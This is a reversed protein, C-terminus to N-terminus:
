TVEEMLDHLYAKLRKSDPISKGLAKEIKDNQEIAHGYLESAFENNGMHQEACTRMLYLLSLIAADVSCAIGRGAAQVAESYNDLRLYIESMRLYVKAQQDDIELSKLHHQIAKETKGMKKDLVFAKMFYANIVVETDGCSSIITNYAKFLANWEGLHFMIEAMVQLAEISTPDNRLADSLRKKAKELRNRSLEIRGLAIYAQTVMPNNSQGATLELISRFVNESEDLQKNNLLLPGLKQLTPLHGKNLELVENFEVIALEPEEVEVLSIGYSYFFNAVELRIDFDDLEQSKQHAKSKKFFPIASSYNGLDYEYMACFVISDMNSDDFGSYQQYLQFVLDKDGIHEKAVEIAKQIYGASVLPETQKDSLQQFLKVLKLWEGRENYIDILISSAESQFEPSQISEELMACAAEVQVLDTYYLQGLRHQLKIKEDGKLLPLLAEAYSAMSEADGQIDTIEVLQTLANINNPSHDLVKSWADIALPYNFQITQRINAIQQLCSLKQEADYQNAERTLLAILDDYNETAAYISKLTSIALFDNPNLDLADLLATKAEDIKEVTYYANAIHRYYKAADEPSNANTALRQLYKVAVETEGHEGNIRALAELIELDNPNEEHLYTFTELALSSTALHEVLIWHLKSNLYRRGTPEKWNELLSRLHKAAQEWHGAYEACRIIRFGLLRINFTDNQEQALEFLTQYQAGALEFERMRELNEAYKIPEPNPLTDFLAELESLKHNAVYIDVLGDFAKGLGPSADFIQRFCKAAAELQGSSKLSYGAALAFYQKIAQNDEGLHTALSQYINSLIPHSPNTSLLFDQAQFATTVDSPNSEYAKTWLLEDESLRARDLINLDSPAGELLTLAEDYAEASELLHAITELDSLTSESNDIHRGVVEILNYQEYEVALHLLGFVAGSQTTQNSASLGQILTQARLDHSENQVLQEEAIFDALELPMAGKWRGGPRSILLDNWLTSEQGFHGSLRELAEILRVDTNPLMAILLALVVEQHESQLLSLLITAAAEVDDLFVWHILGLMLNDEISPETEAIQEIISSWNNSIAALRCLHQQVITSLDVPTSALASKALQFCNVADSPRNLKNEAIDAAMVFHSPSNQTEAISMYHQFVDEWRNEKLLLLSNLQHFVPHKSRQLFDGERKHKVAAKLLYGEWMLAQSSDANVLAIQSEVYAVIDDYNSQAMMLESIKEAFPFINPNLDFGTRFASLAKSSDGAVLYAEGLCWQVYAKRNGSENESISSLAEIYLANDKNKLLLSSLFSKENLIFSEANAFDGSEIAVYAARKIWAQRQAPHQQALGLYLQIRTDSNETQRLLREYSIFTESDSPSSEYAKQLLRVAEALQGSQEEHILGAELYYHSAIGGSSLDGMKEYIIAAQPWDEDSELLHSLTHLVNWNDPQIDLAQQLLSIARDTRNLQSVEFLAVDILASIVQPPTLSRAWRELLEASLYFEGKKACVDAFDRLSKPELLSVNDAKSYAQYAGDNDRLIQKLLHGAETYFAGRGENEDLHEAELLLCHALDQAAKIPSSPVYLDLERDNAPKDSPEDQESDLLSEGIEDEVNLGSEQQYQSELDEVDLSDGLNIEDSSPLEPIPPTGIIEVQSVPELKPSKSVQVASKKIIQGDDDLEEDEALESSDVPMYIEDLDDITVDATAFDEDAFEDTMHRVEAKSRQEQEVGQQFFQAELEDFGDSNKSSKINKSM